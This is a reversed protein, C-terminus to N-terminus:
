FAEKSAPHIAPDLEAIVSILGPGLNGLYFLGPADEPAKKKV